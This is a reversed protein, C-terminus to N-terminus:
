ECPMSRKEVDLFVVGTLRREGFNMTIREVLRVLQLTTILGPRFGFEEERLM